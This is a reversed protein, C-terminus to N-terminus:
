EKGNDGFLAGFLAIGNRRLRRSSKKMFVPSIPTRGERMALLHSHSYETRDALDDLSYEQFIPLQAPEINKTTM